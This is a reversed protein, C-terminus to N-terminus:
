PRPPFIGELAICKRPVGAENWDIRHQKGFDPGSNGLPRLDPLGFTHIGDGGYRTGLLAFLAQHPNIPLTRGDCDAWGVPAFDFGFESIEGVFPEIAM